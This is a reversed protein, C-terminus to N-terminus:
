GSLSRIVARARRDLLLLDRWTGQLQALPESTGVIRFGCCHYLAVSVTNQPRPPVLAAALHSTGQSVEATTRGDHRDHVRANMPNHLASSFVVARFWGYCRPFVLM